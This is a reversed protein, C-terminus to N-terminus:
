LKASSYGFIVFIRFGWVHTHVTISLLHRRDLAYLVLFYSVLRLRTTHNNNKVRQSTKQSKNCYVRVSFIYDIQKICYFNLSKPVHFFFFLDASTSKVDDRHTDQLLNHDVVLSFACLLWTITYFIMCLVRQPTVPGEKGEGYILCINWPELNPPKLGFFIVNWSCLNPKCFILTM